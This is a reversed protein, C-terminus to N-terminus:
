LPLQLRYQLDNAFCPLRDTRMFTVLCGSALHVEEDPQLPTTDTGLYVRCYSADHVSAERCLEALCTPRTLYSVLVPGEAHDGLDRLDLCVVALASFTSWDPALVFAACSAFPQPRIAIARDCFDLKLSQVRRETADLADEIDCPLRLPFQLTEPVHYPTGVWVSFTCEQFQVPRTHRVANDVTVRVPHPPPPGRWIDAAGIYDMAPTVEGDAVTDPIRRPWPRVVAPAAAPGATDDAPVPLDDPAEVCYATPLGAICVWVAGLGPM